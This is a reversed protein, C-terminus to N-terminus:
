MGWESKVTYVNSIGGSQSQIALMLTKNGHNGGTDFADLIPGASSGNSWFVAPTTGIPSQFSILGGTQALAIAGSPPV